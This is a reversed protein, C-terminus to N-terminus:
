GRRHRHRAGPRVAVAHQHSFGAMLLVAFTGVISVPVAALPIISARWSQLFLVVVLVVLILAEILTEIVANISHRVFNTPDYIVRYELGEPFNRAMDDMAAKVDTSLQLANSGPAQFIAIAVAPM